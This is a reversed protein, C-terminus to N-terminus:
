DASVRYTKQEEDSLYVNRLIVVRSEFRALITYAGAPLRIYFWPGRVFIKEVHLHDNTGILLFMPILPTGAQRAFVLKLNYLGAWREMARRAALGIGGVMYPYGSPSQSRTVSTDPFQPTRAEVPAASVFLGCIAAAATFQHARGLLLSRQDTM